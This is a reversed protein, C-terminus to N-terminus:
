DSECSFDDTGKLVWTYSIKVAAIVTASCISVNSCQVLHIKELRLHGYLVGLGLACSLAIKKRRSFNLGRFIAAPYIALYLDVLASFALSATILRLGGLRPLRALHSRKSSSYYAFSSYPGHSICKKNTISDDWFAQVPLCLFTSYLCVTLYNFFGIIVSSWLLARSMPSPCFIRNILGVIALKPVAIAM